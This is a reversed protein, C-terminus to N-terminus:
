TSGTHCRTVVPHSWCFFLCMSRRVPQTIVSPPQSQRGAAAIRDNQRQGTLDTTIAAESEEIELRGVHVPSKSLHDDLRSSPPPWQIKGVRIPRQELLADRAPPPPSVRRHPARNVAASSAPAVPPPPAVSPRATVGQSPAPPLPPAPPPVPQSIADPLVDNPKTVVVM